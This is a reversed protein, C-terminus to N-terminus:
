IVAEPHQHSQATCSPSSNPVGKYISQHPTHTKDQRTNTSPNTLKKQTDQHAQLSNASTHIAQTLLKSGTSCIMIIGYAIEIRQVHYLQSFLASGVLKGALSSDQRKSVQLSFRALLRIM